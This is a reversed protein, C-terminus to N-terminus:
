QEAWRVTPLIWEDLPKYLIGHGTGIHLVIEDHRGLGKGESFAFLGECSGSFDDAADRIALVNGFLSMRDQTLEKVTDPFCFGLLAFKLKTNKLLSSVFAAIGAGKSAGVVIINEPPVNASLLINIQDVIKRAYQMGDTDKPRQESIVVFGHGELAQLIAKYKYEGYDPSVAPLGQDEIIKGHLYFLYRKAPDISAPFEYAALFSNAAEPAPSATSAAQATEIATPTSTVTASQCDALFASILILFVFRIAMGFNM